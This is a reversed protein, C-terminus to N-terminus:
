FHADPFNCFLLWDLGTPPMLAGAKFAKQLGNSCFQLLRSFRVTSAVFAVAQGVTASGFLIAPTPHLLDDEARRKQL